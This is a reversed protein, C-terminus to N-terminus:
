EEMPNILTPIICFGNMTIEGSKQNQSLTGLIWAESYRTLNTATYPCIWARISKSIKNGESDFIDKSIDISNDVISLWGSATGEKEDTKTSINQIHGHVARWDTKIPWGRDDVRSLINQKLDRESATLIDKLTLKTAGSLEIVKMPDLKKDVLNSFDSRDDALFDNSKSFEALPVNQYPYFLQIDRLEDCIDGNFGVRRLKMKGDIVYLASYIDGGNKSKRVQDMGIPIIKRPIAPSRTQYKARIRNMIYRELTKEDKFQPDEKLVSHYKDHTDKLTEIPMQTTEAVEELFEEMKESLEETM